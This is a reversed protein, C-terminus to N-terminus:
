NTRLCMARFFRQSRCAEMWRHMWESRVIGVDRLLQSTNNTVRLSDFGQSLLDDDYGISELGIDETPFGGLSSRIGDSTKLGVSASLSRRKRIRTLDYLTDIEDEFTNIIRRQITSKGARLMPKEKSTLQTMGKSTQGHAPCGECARETYIAM